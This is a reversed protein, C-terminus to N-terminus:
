YIICITSIQCCNFHKLAPVNGSLFILMPDSEKGDQIIWVAPGFLNIKLEKDYTRPNLKTGIQDSGMSIKRLPYQGKIKNLRSM